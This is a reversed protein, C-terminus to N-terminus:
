GHPGGALSFTLARLSDEMQQLFFDIEADSMATSVNYITLHSSLVGRDLLELHLKKALSEDHGDSVYERYGTSRHRTFRVSMLSAMGYVQADLGIIQSISGLGDRMRRGLENLRRFESETLLNMAAIGAVMTIPNANFTGGHPVRPLEERFNFVSMIEKRGGIAGVPFGGGIIKGLATLDPTIKARGQFGNYGVRLSYVEDFLLVIGRERTVSRLMTLYDDSIALYGMRSVVPDVLVCALTDAREEILQRTSAVDNLPLVVVEDCISKPTGDCLPVSAPHHAPGWNGATPAFSIETPDYSGHFAGETKAIGTRGTYARAAKIAMMVAETGSNVFRIREIGPIRDCLIEALRIEHETPLGVATLRGLQASVAEVIAPHNHGHILSSFNNVFDIREVGDADTVFCGRGAVAYPPFPKFFYSHRTNGDPLVRRAREHLLASARASDPYM